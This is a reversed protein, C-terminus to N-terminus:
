SSDGPRGLATMLAHCAEKIAAMTDLFAADQEPTLGNRRIDRLLTAIEGLRALIQMFTQFHKIPRIRSRAAKVAKAILSVVFANQSQGAAQATEALPLRLEEPLRVALPPPRKRKTETM